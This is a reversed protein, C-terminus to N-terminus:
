PTTGETLLFPVSDYGATTVTKTRVDFLVERDGIKARIDPRRQIKVTEVRWTWHLSAQRLPISFGSRASFIKRIKPNSVDTQISWLCYGSYAGKVVTVQGM